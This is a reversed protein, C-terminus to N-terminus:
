ILYAPPQCRCFPYIQWVRGMVVLAVPKRSSLRVCLRCHGAANTFGNTLQINWNDRYM